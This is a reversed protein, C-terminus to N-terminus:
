TPGTRARSGARDVFRLLWAIVVLATGTWRLVTSGSSIGLLFVVIGAIALAVKAISVPSM